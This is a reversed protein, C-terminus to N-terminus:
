GWEGAGIWSSARGRHNRLKTQFLGRKREPDRARDSIRMWTQKYIEECGWRRKREAKEKSRTKWLYTTGKKEGGAREREGYGTPELFKEEM